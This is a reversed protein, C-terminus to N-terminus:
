FDDDNPLCERCLPQPDEDWMYLRCAPLELDDDCDQCKYDFCRRCICDNTQCGTCAVCGLCFTKLCNICCKETNGDGILEKGCTHCFQKCARCEGEAYQCAKCIEKYCHICQTRSSQKGCLECLEDM